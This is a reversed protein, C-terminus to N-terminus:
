EAAAAAAATDAKTTARRFTAMISVPDGVKNTKLAILLFVDDSLQLQAYSDKEWKELEDQSTRDRFPYVKAAGGVKALLTITQDERSPRGPKGATPDAPKESKEDRKGKAKDELTRVSAGDKADDLLEDQDETDARAVIQLKRRGVELFTDKDFKETMDVLSYALTHSIKMSECWKRFTRHGAAKWLNGERVARIELGLEYGAGVMNGQERRINDERTNLAALMAESGKALDTGPEEAAADAPDEEPEEDLNATPPEEADAPEVGAAEDVKDAEIPKSEEEDDDDSSAPAEASEEGEELGEDGCFPCVELADADDTVEGCVPCKIWDDEPIGELRSTFGARLAKVITAPKARGRPMKIGLAKAAAKMTVTDPEVGAINLISDSM